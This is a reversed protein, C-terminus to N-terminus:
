RYWGSLTASKAAEAASSPPLEDFSFGESLIIPLMRAINLLTGAVLATAGLRVTANPTKM